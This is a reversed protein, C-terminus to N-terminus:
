SHFLYNFLTFCVTNISPMNKESFDGQKECVEGGDDLKEKKIILQKYM